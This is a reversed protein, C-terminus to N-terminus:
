SLFQYQELFKNFFSSSVHSVVRSRLQIVTEKKKKTKWAPLGLLHPSDERNKATREEMM